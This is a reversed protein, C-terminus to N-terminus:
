YSNLDMTSVSATSFIASHGEFVLWRVILCLNKQRWFEFFLSFVRTTDRPASFCNKSKLLDRIPLHQSSLSPIVVKGPVEREDNTLTADRRTHKSYSLRYIVLFLTATASLRGVDSFSAKESLIYPYFGASPSASVWSWRM